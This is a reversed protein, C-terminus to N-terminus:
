NNERIEVKRVDQYHKKADKKYVYIAILEDQDGYHELTGCIRNNCFGAWGYIKKAM